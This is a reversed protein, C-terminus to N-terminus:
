GAEFVRSDTGGSTVIPIHVQRACRPCWGVFATKQVNQYAHTVMRCCKMHVTVFPRAGPNGSPTGGQTSSINQSM